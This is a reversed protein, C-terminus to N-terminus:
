GFLAALLGAILLGILLTVVVVGAVLFVAGIAVAGIAHGTSFGHNERTAIVGLVLVWVSLAFSILSGLVAGGTAAVDLLGGVVGFAMPFYAIGFGAFQGGFTGTGSLLKAALHVAAAGILTGLLAVTLGFAMWTGSGIRDVEAPLMERLAPEAELQSEFQGAGVVGNLLAVGILVVVAWVIRPHHTIRRLTDVPATIVGVITEFFGEPEPTGTAPVATGPGHEPPEGGTTDSM